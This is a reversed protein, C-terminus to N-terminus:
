CNEAPLDLAKESKKKLAHQLVTLGVLAAKERLGQSVAQETLRHPAAIRKLSWGCCQYLALYRYHELGDRKRRPIGAARRSNGIAEPVTFHQTHELILLHAVLASKARRRFEKWPEDLRPSPYDMPVFMGSSRAVTSEVSPLTVAGETEIGSSQRFRRAWWLPEDQGLETKSWARCIQNAYAIVWGAPKDDQDSEVLSCDAAWRAFQESVGVDTSDREALFDLYNRRRKTPVPEHMAAHWMPWVKDRLIQLPNGTVTEEAYGSTYIELLARLFNIQAKEQKASLPAVLYGATGFGSTASV